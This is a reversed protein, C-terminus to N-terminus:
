PSRSGAKVEYYVGLNGVNWSITNNALVYGAGRRYSRRVAPFRISIVGSLAVGPGWNEYDINFTV